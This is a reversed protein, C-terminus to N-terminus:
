RTWTGAKIGQQMHRRTAEEGDAAKEATAAAPASGGMTMGRKMGVSYIGYGGAGFVAIVLVLTIPKIKM